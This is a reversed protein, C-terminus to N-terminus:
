KNKYEYRIIKLVKLLRNKIQLLTKMSIKGINM